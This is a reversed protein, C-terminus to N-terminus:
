PLTGRYVYARHSRHVATARRLTRRDAWVCNLLRIHNHTYPPDDDHTAQYYAKLVKELSQHCLFAAYLWYGNSHNSEAVELDEAAIELWRRVIDEKAM